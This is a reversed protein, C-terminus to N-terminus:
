FFLYDGNSDKELKNPKYKPFLKNDLYFSLGSIAGCLVISIIIDFADQSNKFSQSFSLLTLIGCFRYAPANYRAIEYIFYVNLLPVIFILFLAWAQGEQISLNFVFFVKLLITAALFSLLINNYLSYEAKDEATPTGTILLALSKKDYYLQTLENYIEQDSKGENRNEFIFKRASKRDLSKKGM